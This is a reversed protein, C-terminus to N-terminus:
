RRCYNIKICNNRSFCAAAVDMIYRDGNTQLPPKWHFESASKLMVGVRSCSKWLHVVWSPIVLHGWDEYPLEFFPAGLGLEVQTLAISAKLQRGVDDQRRVHHLCYVVKDTLAETWLTSAGM